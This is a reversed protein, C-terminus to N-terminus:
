RNFTLYLQLKGDVETPKMILGKKLYANYFATREQKIQNEAGEIRAETFLVDLLDDIAFQEWTGFTNFDDIKSKLCNLLVTTKFKQVKDQAFTDMFCHSISNSDMKEIITPSTCRKENLVYFRAMPLNAILGWFDSDSSALIISETNETYFAECVGATMAIDVLSKNELVRAIEKHTIPLNIVEAIYDWAASTNVDDYLVINKIKQLNEPDLNLLTAAFCYPNVNECDVFIAIQKAQDVFQYVTEKSAKKADIVYEQATFMDGNASYLLKLFKADNFLINGDEERFEKPWNLYMQFPYSIRNHLFAGRLEHIRNVIARGNSALNNGKSGAYCNPMLFLAKIYEFKVWDPILLKVKDINELIFQNIYAVNVFLNNIGKTSVIATEMNQERLYTISEADLLEGLQEFSVLNAREANIREYNRLFQTRLICLHRITLADKDKRLKDLLKTDFYSTTSFSYDSVGIMFAVKTILEKRYNEFSNEQEVTATTQTEEILIDM